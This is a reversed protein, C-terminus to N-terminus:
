LNVLLHCEQMKLPKHGYPKAKLFAYSSQDIDFSHLNLRTRISSKLHSVIIINLCDNKFTNILMTFLVCQVNISCKEIASILTSGLSINM